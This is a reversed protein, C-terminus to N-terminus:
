KFYGEFKAFYLEGIPIIKKGVWIQRKQFTDIKSRSVIFSRHVRIFQDNPLKLHIGKVNLRTLVTKDSTIIKVYDKLGEIYLIDNFPIRVTKYESKVLLYDQPKSKTEPNLIAHAKNVSKLFREFRIPKLLYDIIDLDYGKLAYEEYATTFVILPKINLSNVFDIGSIDPMEVDIFILDVTKSNLLQLDELANTTTLEVDLIPIKNAFGTLINIAPEEDDIIITKM